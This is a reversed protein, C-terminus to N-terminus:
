KAAKKDKDANEANIKKQDAQSKQRKIELHHKLHAINAADGIKIYDDYINKHDTSLRLAICREVLIRDNRERRRKQKNNSSQNQSTGKKETTFVETAKHVFSLLERINIDNKNM